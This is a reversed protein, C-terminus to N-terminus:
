AFACIHMHMMSIADSRLRRPSEWAAIAAFIPTFWAVTERQSLPSRVGFERSMMATLAAISSSQEFAGLAAQRSPSPCMVGFLMMCATYVAERSNVGPSSKWRYMSESDAGDLADSGVSRCSACRTRRSTALDIADTPRSSIRVRRVHDKNACTRSRLHRRAIRNGSDASRVAADRRARGNPEEPSDVALTVRGPESRSDQAMSIRFIRRTQDSTASTRDTSTPVAILFMPRHLREIRELVRLAAAGIAEADGARETNGKRM